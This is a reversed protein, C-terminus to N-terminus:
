IKLSVTNLIFQSASLNKEYFFGRQASTLETPFVCAPLKRHLGYRFHKLNVGTPTSRTGSHAAWTPYAETSFTFKSINKASAGSKEQVPRHPNYSISTSPKLAFYAYLRHRIIREVLCEHKASNGCRNIRYLARARM